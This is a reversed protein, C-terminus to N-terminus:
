LYLAPKINPWLRRRQGFMSVAFSGHKTDATMVILYCSSVFVSSKIQAEKCNARAYIIDRRRMTLGIKGFYNCLTTM